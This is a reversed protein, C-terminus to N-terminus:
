ILRLGERLREVEQAQEHMVEIVSEEHRQLICRILDLPTEIMVSAAKRVKENADPANAIERKQRETLKKM